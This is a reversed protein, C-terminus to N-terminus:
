HGLPRGQNRVAGSGRVTPFCSYAGLAVAVLADEACVGQIDPERPQEGDPSTEDM